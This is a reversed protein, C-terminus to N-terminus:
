LIPIQCLSMTEGWYNDGGWIIISGDSKLGMSHDYGAAIAVFGTNPSPVSCQGGDTRGWGIIKGAGTGLAVTSTLTIFLAATALFVLSQVSRRM